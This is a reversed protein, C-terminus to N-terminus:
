SKLPNASGLCEMRGAPGKAETQQKNKTKKSLGGNANLEPLLAVTPAAPTIGARKSLLKGYASVCRM